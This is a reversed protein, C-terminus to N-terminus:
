LWLYKSWSKLDCLQTKKFAVRKATHNIPEVESRQYRTVYLILLASRTALVVWLCEELTEEGQSCGAEGGAQQGIDPNKWKRKKGGRLVHPMLRKRQGSAGVKIRRRTLCLAFLSPPPPFFSPLTMCSACPLQPDNIVTMVSLSPPHFVHSISRPLCPLFRQASILHILGNLPRPKTTWVLSRCWMRFPESDTSRRRGAWFLRSTFADRESRQVFISQTHPSCSMFAPCHESDLDWVWSTATTGTWFNIFFGSYFAVPSLNGESRHVGQEQRRPSSPWDSTEESRLKKVKKVRQLCGVRTVCLKLRWGPTRIILSTNRRRSCCCVWYNWNQLRAAGCVLSRMCCATCRQPLEPPWFAERPHHTNAGDQLDPSAATPFVPSSKFVKLQADWTSSFSKSGKKREGSASRVRGSTISATLNRTQPFPLFLYFNFTLM